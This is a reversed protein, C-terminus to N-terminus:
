PFRAGVGDHSVDTRPEGRVRRAQARLSRDGGPSRCACLACPTRRPPRTRAVKAGSNTNPERPTEPGAITYETDAETGRADTSDFVMDSSAGLSRSTM